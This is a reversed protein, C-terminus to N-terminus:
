KEAMIVRNRGKEKAEYLAHDARKIVEEFGKFEKKASSVGASITVKVPKGQHPHTKKTLSKLLDTTKERDKGRLYFKRKELAEQTKKMLEFAESSDEKEFIACFEEGGYRYVRDGLHEELHQAIMRLVNDGEAHGYTDNFKKFHDIDVMALTYHDRLNHLREDLAQRNPIGTLIDVYVKQWYMRLISHLLIVTITTFSVIVYFNRLIQDPWANTILCM